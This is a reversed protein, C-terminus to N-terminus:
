RAFYSTWFHLIKPVLTMLYYGLLPTFVAFITLTEFQKRPINALFHLKGFDFSWAPTAEKTSLIRVTGSGRPRFFPGIAQQPPRNPRPSPTKSLATARKMINDGQSREFATIVSRAYLASPRASM